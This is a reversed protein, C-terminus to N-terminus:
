GDEGVGVEEEDSPYVIDPEPPNDRLEAFHLYASKLVNYAEGYTISKETPLSTVPDILPIEEHMIDESAPAEMSGITKFYREDTLNIVKEEIFKVNPIGELPNDIVIRKARVWSEGRVGTERYNAM